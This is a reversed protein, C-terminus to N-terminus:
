EGLPSTEGDASYAAFILQGTAEQDSSASCEAYRLFRAKDCTYTQDSGGNRHTGTWKLAAETGRALTFNEPLTKVNVTIKMRLGVEDSWTPHRHGDVFHDLETGSVAKEVSTVDTIPTAGFSCDSIGVFVDPAAM